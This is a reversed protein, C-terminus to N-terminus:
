LHTFPPMSFNLSKDLTKYSTASGVHLGSLQIESGLSNIM